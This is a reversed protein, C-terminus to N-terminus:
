IKKAQVKLYYADVYMNSKNMRNQTVQVPHILCQHPFHLVGGKM